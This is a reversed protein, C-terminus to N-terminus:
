NIGICTQITVRVVKYGSRVGEFWQTFGAMNRASPGQTVTELRYSGYEQDADFEACDTEDILREFIQSVQIDTDGSDNIVERSLISQHIVAEINDNAHSFCPSFVCVLLFSKMLVSM